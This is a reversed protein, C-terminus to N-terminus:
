LNPLEGQYLKSKDWINNLDKYLFYLQGNNVKIKQPFIKKIKTVEKVMGDRLNIETLSYMAGTTFLAYAKNNHNDTIIIPIWNEKKHYKVNISDVLLMENSYIDIRSKLHNFYYITNNLLKITQYSPKFFMMEECRLLDGFFLKNLPDNYLFIAHEFADKNKEWEYVQDLIIKEHTKKNVMYFIHKWEENKSKTSPLDSISIAAYELKPAKDTNGEFAFYTPTEFLCNGLSNLFKTLLTPYIFHISDNLSYLQYASDITLLHCNSMCDKFIQKPKNLHSVDKINITDFNEDTLILEHRNKNYNYSLILINTDLFNYDIVELGKGKFTKYNGTTIEAESLTITNPTLLVIVTDTQIQKIIIQKDLYSIHSITFVAPFKNVRLEYIGQINTSTGAFTDHLLINVGEIPLQTVKNKVVGRIILQNQAQSVVTVFHMGILFLIAILNHKIFKHLSM